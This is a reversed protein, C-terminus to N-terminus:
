FGTKARLSILYNSWIWSRWKPRSAAASIKGDALLELIERREDANLPM